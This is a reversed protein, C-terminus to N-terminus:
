PRKARLPETYKVMGELYPGMEDKRWHDGPGYIATGNNETRQINFSISDNATTIFILNTEWIRRPHGPFYVDVKHLYDLIKNIQGTDSIVTLSETLNVKWDPLSPTLVIKSVTKEKLMKIADYQGWWQRPLFYPVFLIWASFLLLRRKNRVKIVFVAIILIVALSLFVIAPFHNM